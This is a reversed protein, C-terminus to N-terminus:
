SLLPQSKDVKQWWTGNSIFKSDKGKETVYIQSGSIKSLDTIDFLVGQMFDSLTESTPINLPENNEFEFNLNLGRGQRFIQNTESIYNEKSNIAIHRIMKLTVDSSNARYFKIEQDGQPTGFISNIM